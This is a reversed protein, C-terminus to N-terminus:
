ARGLTGANPTEQWDSPRDERSRGYPAGFPSNGTAVKAERFALQVEDGAVLKYPEVLGSSVAEALGSLDNESIPEPEADTPTAESIRYISHEAASLAELTRNTEYLEASRDEIEQVLVDRRSALRTIATNLLSRAKVFDKPAPPPPLAAPEERYNSPMESHLAITGDVRASAGSLLHSIFTRM